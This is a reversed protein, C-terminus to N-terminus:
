VQVHGELHEVPIDKPVGKPWERQQNRSQKAVLLASIEEPSLGLNLLGDFAIIISDVWEWADGPKELVEKAESLLHKALGERRDEKGFTEVSWEKHRELYSHLDFM